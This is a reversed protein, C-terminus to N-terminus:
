EGDTEGSEQQEIGEGAWLDFFNDPLGNYFQIFESVLTSTPGNSLEEQFEDWSNWLRENENKWTCLYTLYGWWITNAKAEVTLSFISHKKSLLELMEDRLELLKKQLAKKKAGKADRIELQLKTSQKQNEALRKEHEETWLGRAEAIKKMEEETKLGDDVLFRTLARSRELDAELEDKRTPYKLVLDGLGDISVRKMGTVTQNMGEAVEDETFEEKILIDESM